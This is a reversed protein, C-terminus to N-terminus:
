YLFVKPGYMGVTGGTAAVLLSLAWFFGANVAPPLLSASIAVGVQGPPFNFYISTKSNFILWAAPMGALSASLSELAVPFPWSFGSGSHACNVKPSIPTMMM